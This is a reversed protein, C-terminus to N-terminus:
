RASRTSSCHAAMLRWCWGRHAVAVPAPSRVTPTGFLEAEALTDPLAACNVAIFEGRRDSAAHAHRAFQEKGTGTEGCLLLPLKRRAASELRRELVVPDDAVFGDHPRAPTSMPSTGIAVPRVVRVNELKAVFVSGVRDELRM